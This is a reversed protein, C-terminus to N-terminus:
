RDEEVSVVTGDPVNELLPEYGSGVRNESTGASAICPGNVPRM